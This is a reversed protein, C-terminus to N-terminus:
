KNPDHYDFHGDNTNAFVRGSRPNWVCRGRHRVSCWKCMPRRKYDRVELLIALAMTSVVFVVWLVNGM